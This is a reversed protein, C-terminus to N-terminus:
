NTDGSLQLQGSTLALEDALEPALFELEHAVRQLAANLGLGANACVVMLDLADPFSRTIALQRRAVLRDLVLRPLLLGIYAAMVLSVIRIALHQDVLAPWVFSLSLVIMLLVFAASMGMLAPLAGPSRFGASVLKGSMEK